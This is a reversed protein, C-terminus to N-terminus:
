QGAPCPFRQTLFEYVGDTPPREGQSPNEKVWSVFEAIAQNRTPAPKPICFAPKGRAANIQALVEYTGLMYGHCFNQAATTMLLNSSSTDACLEAVASTTPVTFTQEVPQSHAAPALAMAALVCVTFLSRKM